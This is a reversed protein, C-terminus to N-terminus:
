AARRGDTTRAAASILGLLAHGNRDADFKARALAHGAGGLRSRLAEDDVM